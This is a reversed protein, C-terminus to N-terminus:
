TVGGEDGFESCEQIGSSRLDVGPKWVARVGSSREWDPDKGDGSGGRLGM